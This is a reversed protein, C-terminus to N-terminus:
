CHNLRFLFALQLDIPLDKVLDENIDLPDELIIEQFVEVLCLINFQELDRCDLM